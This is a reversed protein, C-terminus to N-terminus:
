TGSVAARALIWDTILDLADPAYAHRGEWLFRLQAHWPWQSVLQYNYPGAKLLGHTADPLVVLSTAQHRNGLATQYVAADHAADVNLDDAGWLALVPLSLRELDSRADALRNRRIFGWRAESLEGGFVGETYTADPGFLRENREADEALFAEIEARNIRADMRELRTRTYYRGQQQWSVAPGVLVLFDAQEDTLKPLVWGAQSFGLVGISHDAFRERLVQVAAVTEATRDEMSQNLWDGTSSGIGPKDWSAVAIGADLMVNIFPAYGDASTRDQPGDGHVLVIAAQVPGDPLWLTGDLRNEGNSFVFAESQVSALDHDALRMIIVVVAAVVFVLGALLFVRRPM